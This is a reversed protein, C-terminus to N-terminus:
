FCFTVEYFRQVISVFFTKRKFFFFSQSLGGTSMWRHLPFNEPNSKLALFKKKKRINQHREDWSKRFNIMGTTGLHSIVTFGHPFYAQHFAFYRWKHLSQTCLANWVEKIKWYYGTNPPIPCALIQMQYKQIDWIKREGKAWHLVTIIKKKWKVQLDSRYSFSQLFTVLMKPTRLHSLFIPLLPHPQAVRGKLRCSIFTLQENQPMNSHSGWM